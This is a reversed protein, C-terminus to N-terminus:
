QAISVFIKLNESNKVVEYSIREVELLNDDVGVAKKVADAFTDLFNIADGRQSPKQVHYSLYYKDKKWKHDGCAYSLIEELEQRLKRHEATIYVRGQRTTRWMKNKSYEYTFPIAVLVRYKPRAAKEYVCFIGKPPEPQPIPKIKAMQLM